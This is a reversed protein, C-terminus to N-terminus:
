CSQLKFLLLVLGLVIVVALIFGILRVWRDIMTEVELNLACRHCGRDGAELQNGCYTCVM